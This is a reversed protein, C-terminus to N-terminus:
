RSKINHYISCAGEKVKLDAMLFTGAPIWAFTMGLTNTLFPGVPKVGASVLGRIRDELKSRDPVDLSQTLTHLLRILEGRQDDQEELWDAFVLRLSTDEPDDQMAQLFAQEDHM